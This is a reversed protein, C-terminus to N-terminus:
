LSESTNDDIYTYRGMRDDDTSGSYESYDTMYLMLADKLSQLITLPLVTTQMGAHLTFNKDKDIIITMDYSCDTMLILKDSEDNCFQKVNLEFSPYKYSSLRYETDYSTSHLTITNNNYTFYPPKNYTGLFAIYKLVDTPLRGFEDMNLM